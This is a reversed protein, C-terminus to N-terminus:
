GVGVDEESNASAEITEGSYRTQVEHADYGQTRLWRAFVATYGHTVFVREAGTAAVAANLGPWDAHDSLVFGRDAARRRKHGRLQMWGSAMGTAFPAFRRLWTSGLASPPAVVLAKRWTDKPLDAAAYPLDPLPLGDTRLAANVNFVAGHVYVPGISHDLGALLRQAKGLAYGCLISALGQAQNHRWWANIEAWIDAEPAWRFVPLGFTSETIFAHCRVPQFPAGLGDETTKYDGSAVWVEGQHEVRVQASGYLHGAPHLSLTVGRHSVPQGYDLTQLNIDAGLRLRLIQEAHTHALYAGHGRTAHDAHAHTIIARAVPQWPDIYLDAPPCYIGRDTFQLLDAM